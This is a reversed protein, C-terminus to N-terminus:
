VNMSLSLQQGAGSHRAEHELLWKKRWMGGAYGTMSGHAGIVRHCPLVILLKNKGNASGVARVANRDGISAAIESYSVTTGYPIQQLVKWVKKQFDTGEQELPISFFRREGYFYEKLEEKCQLIIENDPEEHIVPKDDIFQLTILHYESACIEIIGPPTKFYCKQLHM